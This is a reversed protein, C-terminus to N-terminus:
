NFRLDEGEEEVQSLFSSTLTSISTNDDLILLLNILIVVRLKCRYTAITIARSKERMFPVSPAM